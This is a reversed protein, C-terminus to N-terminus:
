VSIAQGDICNAVHVMEVYNGRQGWLWTGQDIVGDQTCYDESEGVQYAGEFHHYHYIPESSQAYIPSPMGMVTAVIATYLLKRKMM